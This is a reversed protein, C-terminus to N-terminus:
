QRKGVTLNTHNDSKKVSLNLRWWLDVTLQAMYVASHAATHDSLPTPLQSFDSGIHVVFLMIHHWFQRMHLLVPAERGSITEAHASIQYGCLNWLQSSVIDTCGHEGLVTCIAPCTKLRSSLVPVDNQVHITFETCVDNHLVLQLIWM